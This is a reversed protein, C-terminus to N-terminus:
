PTDRVARVYNECGSCYRPSETCDGLNQYFRDGESDGCEPGCVESSWYGAREYELLLNRNACIEALESRTPLRWSGIPYGAYDLNAAWSMCVSPLMTAGYATGANYAGAVVYIAGIQVVPSVQYPNNRVARVYRETHWPDDSLECTSEGLRMTSRKYGDPYAPARSSTWYDAPRYGELSAKNECIYVAETATPLRWESPYGAYDLHMAWNWAEWYTMAGDDRTGANDRGKVVYIGGLELVEDPKPIPTPTPGADRIARVYVVQERMFNISIWEELYDHLEYDTGVDCSNFLKYWLLLPEVWSGLVRWYYNGFSGEPTSTWYRGIQYGDLGAANDCIEQSEGLSPLRWGSSYGAYDLGAAWAMGEPASGMPLGGYTGANVRGKVVYM